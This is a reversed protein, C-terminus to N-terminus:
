KRGYSIYLVLPLLLFIQIEAAVELIFLDFTLILAWGKLEERGSFFFRRPFDLKSLILHNKTKNRCCM